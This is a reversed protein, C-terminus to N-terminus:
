VSYPKMTNFTRELYYISSPFYMRDMYKLRNYQSIRNNIFQSISNLSINICGEKNSEGEAIFLKGIQYKGEITIISQNKLNEVYRSYDEVFGFRGLAKLLYSENVLSKASRNRGTKVECILGIITHKDFEDLLTPDNELTQDEIKETECPFKIALVDFDSTPNEQDSHLVFNTIIFFGNFRLYWYALEEGYNLM